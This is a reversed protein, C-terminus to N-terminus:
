GAAGNHEIRRMRHLKRAAFPCRRTTLALEHRYQRAGRDGDTNGSQEHFRMGIRVSRERVTGVRPRQSLHACQKLYQTREIHRDLADAECFGFRSLSYISM